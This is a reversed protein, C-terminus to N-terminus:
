VKKALKIDKFYFVRKFGILRGTHNAFWIDIEKEKNKVIVHTIYYLTFDEIILKENLFIKGLARLKGNM